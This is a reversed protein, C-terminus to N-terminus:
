SSFYTEIWDFGEDDKPFEFTKDMNEIVHVPIVKNLRNKNRELITSMATSVVICIKYYDAPVRQLKNRRSKCTLNTQDWIVNKGCSFATALKEYMYKEAEKFFRQFAENYSINLEKAKNELYEDTSIAVFDDAYQKIYTSKGSCPLGVMMIFQKNM